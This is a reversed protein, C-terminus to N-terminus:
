ARSAMTAVTTRSCLSRMVWIRCETAYKESSAYMQFKGSATPRNGNLPDGNGNAKTVSVLALFDIKHELAAM